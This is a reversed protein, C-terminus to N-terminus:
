NSGKDRKPAVATSVAIFGLVFLVLIIASTFPLMRTLFINVITVSLAVAMTLLTQHRPHKVILVEKKQCKLNGNM